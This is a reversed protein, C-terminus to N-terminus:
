PEVKITVSFTDVIAKSNNNDYCEFSLEIEGKGIVAYTLVQNNDWSIPMRMITPKIVNSHFSSIDGNEDKKEIWQTGTVEIVPIGDPGFSISNSYTSPLTIEIVDGIHPSFLKGNDDQIIKISNESDTGYGFAGMIETSVNGLSGTSVMGLNGVTYLGSVPAANDWNVSDGNGNHDPVPGAHLAASGETYLGPAPAPNDGNVSDATGNHDPAPGAHYSEYTSVNGLSGTSVMGLNGVTYLGSVPAANDWNVSDGNGNHDPVPGAHLAASGETYLGPAPAPNNGNVSDVNQPPPVVGAYLSAPTLTSGYWNYPWNYGNSWSSYSNPSYSWSYISPVNYNSSWAYNYPGSYSNAFGVNNPNYSYLNNSYSGFSSWQSSGYYANALGIFRSSCLVIVATLVIGISLIQGKIAKHKIM